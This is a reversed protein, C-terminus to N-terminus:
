LFPLPSITEFAGNCSRPGDREIFLACKFLHIQINVTRGVAAYGSVAPVEERHQPEAFLLVGKNPAPGPFPSPISISHIPRPANQEAARWFESSTLSM